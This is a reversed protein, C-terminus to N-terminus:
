ISDIVYHQDSELALLADGDQYRHEEGDVVLIVPAKILKLQPNLKYTM